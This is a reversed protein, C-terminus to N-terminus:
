LLCVCHMCIQVYVYVLSEHTVPRDKPEEDGSTEGAVQLKFPTSLECEEEYPSQSADSCQDESEDEFEDSSYRGGGCSSNNSKHITESNASVKSDESTQMQLDGEQHSAFSQVQTLGLTEPIETALPDVSNCNEHKMIGISEKPPKVVPLPLSSESFGIFDQYKASKAVVPKWPSVPKGESEERHKKSNRKQYSVTLQATKTIYPSGTTAVSSQLTHNPTDNGTSNVLPESSTISHEFHESHGTRSQDIQGNVPIDLNFHVCKNPTTEQSKKASLPSTTLKNNSKPKNRHRGTFLTPLWM